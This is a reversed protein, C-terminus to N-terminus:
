VSSHYDCRVDCTHTALVDSRLRELNSSDGFLGTPCQLHYSSLCGDEMERTREMRAEARQMSVDEDSDFLVHAERARTREARYTKGQAM